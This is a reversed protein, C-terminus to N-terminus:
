QADHTMGSPVWWRATGARKGRVWGLRELAAIIRRQDATGIRPLEIKLGHQAVDLVTTRQKGALFGRIQEEWADAEYRAEQEPAIFEREFAADPWWRFGKQYLHVAEAFLQDRNRILADVDIIGIKVPWFRRGGTEDRLYATKNTTGVFVCQRPEIVEKRGYSPRYREVTRTVFAKLASAEAKDLASMEAVEILWKGNLHQAVDKGATRIDPLNDSFWYGGLVRCATSKLSGQPGELIPMYDAKCGPEFIRAVMAVLFMCGIRRHYEVDEAGLYANLWTSLRPTGDWELAHLYIRVPHFPREQARLDVAQHVTDKGVKELGSAQLLEQIATVDADRVLRPQFRGEDEHMMGGPVPRSLIPARLMEDYSFLGVIHADERLALMANYLNPRPEGQRDCQAKSLWEARPEKTIATAKQWIRHLQRGGDLLGKEAYWHTTQPDTRLAKCFEEFSRGVCCMALGIRFAIASRSNDAARQNNAKTSKANPILAALRDLTAADLTALRDPTGPWREETVAFFRGAFYIEIAPGHDRGDQGPVSRRAGWADPQVGIRDLFPRVHESAANFYLKLGRGSPSRETYTLIAGLIEAAWSALAGDEAICSDLDIGALFVGSGFDGLEIGIGGGHGNVLKKARAEAAARTGWTAPDDAKAKKGNPAYPVKTPKAGRLEVRWAVWRPNHALADLPTGSKEPPV